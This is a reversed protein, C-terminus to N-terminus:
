FIDVGLAMVMAMDALYGFIIKLTQVVAVTIDVGPNNTSTAVGQIGYNSFSKLGSDGGMWTWQGAQAQVGNASLLFIFCVFLAKATFHTKM